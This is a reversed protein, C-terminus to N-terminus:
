DSGHLAEERLNTWTGFREIMTSTSPFKDPKEKRYKHQSMRKVTCRDRVLQFATVLDGTPYKGKQQDVEVIHPCDREVHHKVTPEKCEFIFAIEGRTYDDDRDLARMAHCEHKSIGAEPHLNTKVKPKKM